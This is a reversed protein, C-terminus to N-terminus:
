TRCGNGTLARRAQQQRRIASASEGSPSTGTSARRAPPGSAPGPWRREGHLPPESYVFTVRVGRGHRGWGYRVGGGGGAGDHMVLDRLGGEGGAPSRAPGGGCRGGRGRGGGAGGRRKRATGCASWGGRRGGWCRAGAAAARPRAEARGAGGAASVKATGPRREGDAAGAGRGQAATRRLLTARTWEGGRQRRAQGAAARGGVAWCGPGGLTALFCKYLKKPGYMLLQM